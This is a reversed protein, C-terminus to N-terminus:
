TNSHKTYTDNTILTKEGGLSWALAPAGQRGQRMCSVVLRIHQGLMFCRCSSVAPIQVDGWTLLGVISVVAM